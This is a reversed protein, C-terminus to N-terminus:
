PTIIPGGSRLQVVDGVKWQCHLMRWQKFDEENMSDLQRQAEQKDTTGLTGVQSLDSSDQWFFVGNDRRDLQYRPM